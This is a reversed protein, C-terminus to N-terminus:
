GGEFGEYSLVSSETKGGNKRHDIRRGRKRLGRRRGIERKEGAHVYVEDVEIVGELFIWQAYKSAM